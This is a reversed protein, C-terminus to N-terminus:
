INKFKLKFVIVGAVAAPILWVLNTQVLSVFLQSNEILVPMGATPQQAYASGVFLSLSVVAMLLVTYISSVSYMQRKKLLFLLVRLNFLM